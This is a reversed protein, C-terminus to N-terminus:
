KEDEMTELGTGDINDGIMKEDIVKLLPASDIHKANITNELYEKKSMQVRDKNLTHVLESTKAEKDCHPCIYKHKNILDHCTIVTKCSCHGLSTSIKIRSLDEKIKNKSGKPRGRKSRVYKIVKEKQIKNKSGKPRGRKNKAM